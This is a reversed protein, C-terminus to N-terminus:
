RRSLGYNFNVTIGIILLIVEDTLEVAAFLFIMVKKRKEQLYLLIIHRAWKVNKV